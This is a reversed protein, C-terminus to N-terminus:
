RQPKAPSDPSTGADLKKLAKPWDQEIHPRLKESLYEAMSDFGLQEAIIAAKTALAREIKVAKDDRKPKNQKPMPEAVPPM